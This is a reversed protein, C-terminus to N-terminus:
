SYIFLDNTSIHLSITQESVENYRLYRASRQIRKMIANWINLLFENINYYQYIFIQRHIKSSIRDSITIERILTLRALLIQKLM